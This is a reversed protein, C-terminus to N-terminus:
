AEEGSYVRGWILACDRVCEGVVATCLGRHTKYLTESIQSWEVFTGFALAFGVLYSLNEPHLCRLKVQLCAIYNELAICM